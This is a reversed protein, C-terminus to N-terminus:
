GRLGASAAAQTAVALCLDAQNRLLTCMDKVAARPTRGCGGLGHLCAHPRAVWMGAQVKKVYVRAEAPGVLWAIPGKHREGDYREGIADLYKAEKPTAKTM